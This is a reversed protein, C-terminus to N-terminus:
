NWKTRSITSVDWKLNLAGEKDRFNEVLGNLTYAATEISFSVVDKMRRVLSPYPLRQDSHRIQLNGGEMYWWVEYLGDVRWVEEGEHLPLNLISWYLERYADEDAVINITLTDTFYLGHRYSLGPVFPNQKTYLTKMNPKVDISGPFAFYEGNVTFRIKEM